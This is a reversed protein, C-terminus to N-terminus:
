GGTRSWVVPDLGRQPGALGAEFEQVQGLRQTECPTSSPAEVQSRLRLGVIGSKFTTTDVLELHPPTWGRSSASAEELRSPFTGSHFEDILNHKMLSITLEGTGYKLINQGAKAKLEFVEAALDVELLTANWELPEELTRSAVYKPL